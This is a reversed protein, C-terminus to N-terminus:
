LPLMVRLRVKEMENVTKEGEATIGEIAECKKAVPREEMIEFVDELRHVQRETMDIIGSNSNAPQLNRGSCATPM